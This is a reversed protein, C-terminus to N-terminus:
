KMQLLLWIPIWCMRLAVINCHSYQRILFLNRCKLNKKEKKQWMPQVAGGEIAFFFLKNKSNYYTIYLRACYSCFYDLIVVSLGCHVAM